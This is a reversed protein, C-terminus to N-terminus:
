LSKGEGEGSADRRLRGARLGSATCVLWSAFLFFGLTPNVPILPALHSACLSPPLSPTPPVCVVQERSYTDGERKCTDHEGRSPNSRSGALNLVYNKKIKAEQESFIFSSFSLSSPILTGSVLLTQNMFVLPSLVSDLRSPLSKDESPM